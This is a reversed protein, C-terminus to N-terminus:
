SGMTGRTRRTPVRGEVITGAFPAGSSTVRRQSTVMTAAGGSALYVYGGAMTVAAVTERVGTGGHPTRSVGELALEIAAHDSGAGRAALTAHLGVGPDAVAFRLEGRRPITQAAVYGVSQAHQHVNEGIEAIAQHLVRALTADLEAVRDHVVEALRRADRVLGVEVLHDAGAADPAPPLDHEFGLGGVVVGLQMRAAYRALHPATPGHLRFGIGDRQAAHASAAVTVLHVPDLWRVDRLDVVRTGARTYVGTSALRSGPALPRNM